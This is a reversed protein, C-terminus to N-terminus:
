DTLPRAEIVSVRDSPLVSVLKFGAAGLLARWEAETRERGTLLGLMVLDMVKGPHSVNGAPLVYEVLLLRGETGMAARCGALITRCRDDDWDHLIASLLYVDAGVPGAEFFDGGEFRCRDTVGANALVDAAEDALSPQDFVIGKLGPNAQLLLALMAGNGGGVDVVTRVGNWDYGLVQGTRLSVVSAMARNFQRGAEPNARFYGFMPEGFAHEFAPTGSRVAHLTERFAPYVIQGMYIAFERLSGPADARLLSSLPTNAFGGDSSEAFIGIGALFRLVRYLADPQVSTMRALEEASRGDEILDALRLEAAVYIAQAPVFGTILQWLAAAPPPEDEVGSRDSVTVIALGYVGADVRSCSTEAAM